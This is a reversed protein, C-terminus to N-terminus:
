RRPEIRVKEMVDGVVLQKVVEMGKIVQGFITYKPPLNPQDALVIFFQSGNTDPGSNAMAVTGQLYKRTVPEDVFVYGPGGTGNGLPDGGQVVFGREIRHFILSDYFGDQALFVFNTAAKTAEPYIEFEIIGRATEIVAKKNTLDVPLAPFGGYRKIVKPNRSIPSAQPLASQTAVPLGENFLLDSPAPTPSTMSGGLLKSGILIMAAIGGIIAFVIAFTRQEM